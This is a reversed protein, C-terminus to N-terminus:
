AFLFSQMRIERERPGTFASFLHQEKLGNYNNSKVNNFEYSNGINLMIKPSFEYNYKLKGSISNVKNDSNIFAIKNTYNLFDHSYSLNCELKGKGQYHKWNAIARFFSNKQKENESIPLVVLPQPINRSNEQLWIKFSLQNRFDPQYYLEQLLGYQTFGADKRIEVPFNSNGITNNKYSFDNESTLYMIRTRSQLYTNGLGVNLYSGYTSFSGLQQTYQIKLKEKDPKNAINISGGLGGSNNVLSSGGYMLKLDDMFFVPMMSFDMQGIMPSNITVDNWLVQTHSASTGRFSATALSGQGYTKIFVPTHASLLDALSANIQQSIIVSDVTTTKLGQLPKIKTDSITVTSLKITDSLKQAISQQKISILLLFVFCIKKLLRHKM